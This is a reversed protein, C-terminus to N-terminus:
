KGVGEILGSVGYAERLRALGRSGLKKVNGVSCGLIQATDAESYDEWYRLVVVARTRPPLQRLAAWLEHRDGVATTHDALQREPPDGTLEERQSRRWGTRRENVMVKRVYAEPREYRMVKRWHRYTKCLANQVLDEAQTRNGTLLYATRLLPREEASVFARFHEDVSDAM